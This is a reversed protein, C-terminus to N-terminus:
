EPSVMVGIASLREILAERDHVKPLTVTVADGLMVQETVAMAEKLGLGGDRITQTLRVKKLSQPAARCLRVTIGASASREPGIVRLRAPRGGGGIFSLFTSM